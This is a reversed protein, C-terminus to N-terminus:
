LNGKLTDLRDKLLVPGYQAAVSALVLPFKLHRAVEIACWLDKILLTFNAEEGAMPHNLLLNDTFGWNDIYWSNGSSVAAVELIAEESLGLRKGLGLAELLALNNCLAMHNNCIKAAQGAGVHEGVHFIHAGIAKLIPEARAFNAQSGGVMVTLEGRVAAAHGGSVPADIVEVAVERAQRELEEMTDPTVTSFVILLTGPRMAALLGDAVADLVQKDNVVCLGLVDSARAAGDASSAWTAGWGAVETALTDRLDFAVLNFGADAIGKAVPGGMDGLGVFGVTPSTRTPM